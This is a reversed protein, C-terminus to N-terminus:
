STLLATLQEDPDQGAHDPDAALCERFRLMDEDTPKRMDVKILWRRGFLSM